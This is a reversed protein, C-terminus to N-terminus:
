GCVAYEDQEALLLAKKLVPDAYVEKLSLNLESLAEEADGSVVYEHNSLESRFAQYWHGGREGTTDADLFEKRERAHRENMERFAPIDTRRIFLGPVIQAVKDHDDPDFGWERMIQEFRTLTFAARMPFENMEAQHRKRLRNYENDASYYPETSM